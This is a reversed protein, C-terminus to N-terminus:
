FTLKPLINISAVHSQPPIQLNVGDDREEDKKERKRHIILQAIGRGIVDSRKTARRLRRSKERAPPSISFTRFIM